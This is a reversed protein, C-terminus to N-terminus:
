QLMFSEIFALFKEIQQKNAVINRNLQYELIRTQTNIFAVYEELLRLYSETDQKTNFEYLSFFRHVGPIPSSYFAVPIQFKYFDLQKISNNLDWELRRLTIYDESCLKGTDIKKLKSGLIRFFRNDEKARALGPDPLHEIKLGDKLRLFLNNERIKNWYQELIQTLVKSDQSNNRTVTVKSTQLQKSSEPFVLGSLCLLFISIFSLLKM